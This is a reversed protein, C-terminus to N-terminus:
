KEKGHASNEYMTTNTVKIFTVNTKFTHLDKAGVYTFASRLGGAIDNLINIVSGKVPLLTSEGEAARWSEDKNQVGYSEKSASGRYKKFMNGYGVKTIVKPPMQSYDCMEHYKEYVTEGNSEDTAALMGGLMVADAGAGLAKAIDGSTKLGGDAIIKVTPAFQNLYESIEIIASLQPVGCGTKIRTTCMSGPGIGIKIADPKVPYAKTLFDSLSVVSAFNGVMVFAMPLQTKINILQDVVSQSAGHAVDICFLRAGHEYLLKAVDLENDGVGISVFVDCDENKALKFDELRKETSSFRHLVGIGGAKRMAIAMKPGTITDMNASMIPLTLNAGVWSSLNVDKRSSVTNFKPEILVDDFTFYTM